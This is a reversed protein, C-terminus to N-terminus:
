SVISCVSYNVLMNQTHKHTHPTEPLVKIHVGQLLFWLSALQQLSHQLKQLFHRKLVGIHHLLDLKLVDAPVQYRGYQDKLGFNLFYVDLTTKM